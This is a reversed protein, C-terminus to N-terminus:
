KPPANKPQIKTVKWEEKKNSDKKTSVGTMENGTVTATVTWSAFDIFLKNGNTKYTGVEDVIAVAGAPATYVKMRYPNRDGFPNFMPDQFEGIAQVESLQM